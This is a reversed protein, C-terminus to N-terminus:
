WPGNPSIRAPSLLLSFFFLRISLLLSSPLSSLLSFLSLCFLFPFSFFLLLTAPALAFSPFLFFFRPLLSCFPSYFLCSFPFFFLLLSLFSSLFSFLLAFSLSLFPFSSLLFFFPSLFQSTGAISKRRGNYILWCVIDVKTFIQKIGGFYGAQVSTGNGRTKDFGAATFVAMTVQSFLSHIGEHGAAKIAM